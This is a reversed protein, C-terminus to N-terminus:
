IWKRTHVRIRIRFGRTVSESRWFAGTGQPDPDVVSYTAIVSKLPIFSFTCFKTDTRSLSLGRPCIEYVVTGSVRWACTNHAYAEKCLDLLPGLVHGDDLVGHVPHLLLRPFRFSSVVHCCHRM